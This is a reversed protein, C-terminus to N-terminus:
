CMHFFVVGDAAIDIDKHILPEFADEAGRGVLLRQLGKETLKDRLPTCRNIWAMLHNVASHSTSATPFYLLALEGKGYARINFDYM